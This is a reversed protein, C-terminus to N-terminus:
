GSTAVSEIGLNGLYFATNRVAYEDHKYWTSIYYLAGPIFGSELAGILFGTLLFTSKGKVFMQLGAVLGWAM